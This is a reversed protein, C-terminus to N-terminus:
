AMPWLPDAQGSRASRTSPGVGGLPSLPSVGIAQPGLGSAENRAAREATKWRDHVWFWQDPHARIAAEVKATVAQTLATVPDAEGRFDDPYLPDSIICTHVGKERYIEALVIPTGYKLSLLAPSRHTSAPRGFFDVFVGTHRADQDVQIVLLENKQLVRIMQGLAHYKPIIRQGTQTRFRNLYRDVWPNEVPRALSNLPYGALTVALGCFEWNGLHAISVIIGRGEALVRDVVEFRELRVAGSLQRRELLRPIMLMEVFGQGIHAYVRGIFAHVDEPAVLGRTNALNKEAIRTHKRDIFRIVFALLAGIRPVMSFPFMSIVMVVVRLALYNLIQVPVFRRWRFDRKGDRSM